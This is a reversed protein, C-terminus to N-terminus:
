EATVTHSHCRFPCLEQVERKRKDLEEFLKQSRITRKEM